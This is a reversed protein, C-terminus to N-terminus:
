KALRRRRRFWSSGVDEGAVVVGWGFSDVVPEVGALIELAEAARHGGGPLIM